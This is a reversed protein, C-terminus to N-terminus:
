KDGGTTHARRVLMAAEVEIMKLVTKAKEVAAKIAKSNAADSQEIQKILAETARVLDGQKNLEHFADGYRAWTNKMDEAIAANSRRAEADFSLYLRDSMERNISVGNKKAASELDRRLSERIRLNPQVIDTPKRAM